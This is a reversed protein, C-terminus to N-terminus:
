QITIEITESEFEFPTGKANVEIYRKSKKKSLSQMEEKLTQALTAKEQQTYNSKSNIDRIQRQLDQMATAERGVFTSHLNLIAKLQITYKGPTKIPYYDIINEIEIPLVSDAEITKAVRVDVPRDMSRYPRSKSLPPTPKSCSIVAGSSDKVVLKTAVMEKSVMDEVVIVEDEGAKLNVKIPIPVALPYAKQDTELTASLPPAKPTAVVPTQTTGSVGPASSAGTTTITTTSAEVEGEEVLGYLEIEYIKAPARKLRAQSGVSGPQTTDDSTRMVRIRIRDTTANAKMSVKNEEINKFEKVLKWDDEDIGGSYVSFSRLNPSQVVIKKIKKPEPLKVIAETLRTSGSSADTPLQTEAMTRSDGDVMLPSTAEVGKEMAYNESWEQKAVIGGLSCGIIAISLLIISVTCFIRLM